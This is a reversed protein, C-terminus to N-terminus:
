DEWRNPSRNYEIDKVTEEILKKLETQVKANRLAILIMEVFQDYKIEM